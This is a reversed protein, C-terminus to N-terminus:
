EKKYIMAMGDKKDRWSAQIIVMDYDPHTEMAALFDQMATAFRIANDAVIVARPKLKPEIAKFYNLYDRKVADIFM